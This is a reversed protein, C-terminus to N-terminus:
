EEIFEWFLKENTIPHKGATQQKGTKNCVQGISSSTKLGCWRAADMMTEFVENTNICRVKKGGKSKRHNSIKDISEKSHHRGYFPHEEGSRSGKLAQSIKEKTENTHQKGYFPNGEGSFKESMLNKWEESHIKGKQSIKNAESIKRKTEESHSFNKGGSNINYGFEDNTSNYLSILQQEIDNAKDLTLNEFLILHEFNDWGYKQIAQYFRPSTSYGKGKNWRKEPNQCTQGIYVKNNIKNKHLYVIYKKNM